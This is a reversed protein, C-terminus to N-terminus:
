ITARTQNDRAELEMKKQRHHEKTKHFIATALHLLTSIIALAFTGWPLGCGAHHRIKQTDPNLFNHHKSSCAGSDGGHHSSTIAAVAIFAGMFAIDLAVLLWTILNGGLRSGPRRSLFNLIMLALTYLVAAALIGEVAGSAHSLRSVLRKVKSIRISFLILSILASLFQLTRMVRQFISSARIRNFLSPHAVTGTTSDMNGGRADRKSFTNGNDYASSSVTDNIPTDYAQSTPNTTSTM